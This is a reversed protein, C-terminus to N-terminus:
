RTHLSFPRYSTPRNNLKRVGQGCVGNQDFLIFRRNGEAFKPTIRWKRQVSWSGDVWKEIIQIIESFHNILGFLILQHRNKMRKEFNIQKNNTDRVGRDVAGPLQQPTSYLYYFVFWLFIGLGDMVKPNTRTYGSLPIRQRHAKRSTLSGGFTVFFALSAVYAM